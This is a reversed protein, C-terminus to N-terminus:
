MAPLWFDLILTNAPGHEKQLSLPLISIQRKWSRTAGPTGRSTAADNLDKDGDECPRKGEPDGRDTELKERRERILVDTM